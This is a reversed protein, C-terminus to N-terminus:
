PNLTEEGCTVNVRGGAVPVRGARPRQRADLATREVRFALAYLAVGGVEHAGVGEGVVGVGGM